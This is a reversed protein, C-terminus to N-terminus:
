TNIQQSEPSTIQADGLRFLRKLSRYYAIVYLIPVPFINGILIYNITNNLTRPIDGDFFQLAQTVLVFLLVLSGSAPLLLWLFTIKLAQKWIEKHPYGSTTM